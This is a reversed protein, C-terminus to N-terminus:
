RLPIIPVFDSKAGYQCSSLARAHNWVWVLYNGTEIMIILEFLDLVRISASFHSHLPSWACVLVFHNKNASQFDMWLGSLALTQKVEQAFIVATTIWNCSSVKRSYGTCVAKVFSKWRTICFSSPLQCPWCDTVEAVSMYLLTRYGSLSISAVGHCENGPVQDRSVTWDELCSQPKM